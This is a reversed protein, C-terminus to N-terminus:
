GKTFFGEKLSPLTLVLVTAHAFTELTTEFSSTTPTM